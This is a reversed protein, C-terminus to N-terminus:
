DFILTEAQAKLEDPCYEPFTQMELGTERAAKKRAYQYAKSWVTELYPRLSPSDEILIQLDTAANSISLEWSRTMKEPQYQQKLLHLLLNTLLSVVARKDNRGLSEIEEIINELDVQNWQRQRLLQVQAETWAVFDADYLSQTLTM